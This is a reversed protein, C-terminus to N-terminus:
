NGSEATVVEIAKLLQDDLEEPLLFINYEYAEDSLAVEYDPVIGIDHYVTRSKSFYMAITVRLAGELGFDSLPIINQMCGKGYTTEGVIKALGYDRFTATFLEAASASSGNTIVVSKLDKYKGIDSQKVNFGKYRSGYNRARVYSDDTTGDAMETSVILDGEDLFYSLVAEISALAGGPNNRVDFVFFECGAKLLTDVADTFQSATTQDFGTINVIGVKKNTESIRYRVSETTVKRRTISFKVETYGSDSKSDPRFVTFQAETGAEGLMRNLAETYGLTDVLVRSDDNGVYMVCDGVRVGNELAPSNEFVSIVELVRYQYGNIFISSNVISVGIGVFEGASESQYNKYEQANMYEAYIDGSAALYADLIEERMADEDIGDYSYTKFVSDFRILDQLYQPLDEGNLQIPAVPTDSEEGPLMAGVGYMGCAAFTFLMTVAVVAAVVATLVSVPVSKPRKQKGVYAYAEANAPLILEMGHVALAGALRQEADAECIGRLEASFCLSSDEVCYGADYVECIAVRLACLADEGREISDLGRITYKMKKM